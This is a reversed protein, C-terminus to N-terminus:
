VYNIAYRKSALKYNNVIATLRKIDIEKQLTFPLNIWFDYGAIGDYGRRNIIWARGSTRPHAFVPRDCERMYVQNAKREEVTETITIRRLTQDFTDNLVARLYCVQGNHTLRYNKESRFEIFRSHLNSLVSVGAYLLSAILPRRWFTPLLQLAFRKFNILYYNSM